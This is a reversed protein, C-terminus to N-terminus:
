PREREPQPDPCTSPNTLKGCYNSSIDYAYAMACIAGPQELGQECGSCHVWSAFRATSAEACFNVSEFIGEWAVLDTPERAGFLVLFWNTIDSQIPGDVVSHAVSGNYVRLPQDSCAALYSNGVSTAVLTMAGCEALHVGDLVCATLRGTRASLLTSSLTLDAADLSTVDILGYSLRVSEFQVANVTLQAGSLVSRVMAVTGTFPHDSDGALFNAGDVRELELRAPTEAAASIIRVQKFRASHFIRLSIPGNLEIFVDELSANQLELDLPQASQIMVNVQKWIIDRLIVSRPKDSEAPVIRLQGCSLEAGDPVATEDEIGWEVECASDEDPAIVGQQQDALQACGPQDPSACTELAVPVALLPEIATGDENVPPEIISGADRCPLPLICDILPVAADPPEPPFRDVLPQGIECGLLAAAGFTMLVLWPGASRRRSNKVHKM